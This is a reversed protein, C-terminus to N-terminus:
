RDWASTAAPFVDAPGLGALKTHTHVSRSVLREGVSPIPDVPKRAAARRRAAL